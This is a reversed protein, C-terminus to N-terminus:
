TLPSACVTPERGGSLEIPGEPRPMVRLIKIFGRRPTTHVRKGMASLIVRHANSQDPSQHEHRCQKHRGIGRRRRRAWRGVWLRRRFWFFREKRSAKSSTIFGISFSLSGGFSRLTFSTILLVLYGPSRNRNRPRDIIPDRTVELFNLRSMNQSM